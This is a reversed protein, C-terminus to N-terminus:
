EALALGLATTFRGLQAKPQAQPPRLDVWTEVTVPTKLVEQLRADLGKMAASGGMLFVRQVQPRVEPLSRTCAELTRRVQDLWRTLAPELAVERAMADCNFKHHEAEQWTSQAGMQFAYTFDNGALAFDRAFYAHGELAVVVKTLRSGALVLAVFEGPFRGRNATLARLPPISDFELREVQLGCRGLFAQHDEVEKRAAALLFFGGTRGEKGPVPVPLSTITAEQVPFTLLRAAASMLATEVQERNMPPLDLFRAIGAESQFGARLTAKYKSGSALVPALTTRVTEIARREDWGDEMSAREPLLDTELLELIMKKNPDLIAAKVSHHGIDLGVHVRTRFM